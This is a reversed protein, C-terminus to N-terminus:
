DIKTRCQRCVPLFARPSHTWVLTHRPFKDSKLQQQCNVCSLSVSGSYGWDALLGPKLQVVSVSSTKPSAHHLVAPLLHAVTPIHALPDVKRDQKMNVALQKSCTKVYKLRQLSTKPAPTTMWAPRKTSRNASM